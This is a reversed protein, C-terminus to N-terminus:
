HEALERFAEPVRAASSLTPAAYGVAGRGFKARVADVSHDLAWRAALVTGASADLGAPASPRCLGLALQLSPAVLRSASVALLTVEKESRNQALATCALETAIETLTLTTDVPVALTTSRTVARMGPFRVRVTVTRAAREAARLRSAVRDALYGLTSRLLDGTPRQRGLAAQAGISSAARQHGVQRPDINTALSAMKEGIARGFLRELVNGPAEALEGVTKIGVRALNAQSKPGIGWVLSVPLGHLFERESEPAVVVLGDPKAVQSAVKALHKTRAVGVSLPLGVEERVRRRLAAAIETPSGFLRGAGAVDLFAEDISIREVLPTYDSFLDVVQDGLRQYERFHGPVFRLHGCLQRARWAPMGASVGFSRAEYSAALVVGTGVATPRGKLSPDLLQEVSAYFADLDAHLVSAGGTLAM